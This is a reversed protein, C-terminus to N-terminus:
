AGARGPGPAGLPRRGPARATPVMLRRVAAPRASAAPRVARITAATDAGPARAPTTGPLGPESVWTSGCNLAVTSCPMQFTLAGASAGASAPALHRIPQDHRGPVSIAEM